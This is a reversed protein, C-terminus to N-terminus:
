KPLHAETHTHMECNCEFITCNVGMFVPLWDKSHRQYIKNILDCLRSFVDFLFLLKWYKDLALLWYRRKISGIPELPTWFSKQNMNWNLKEKNNHFNDTIETSENKESKTVGIFLIPINSIAKSLKNNSQIILILKIRQWPLKFTDLIAKWILKLWCFCFINVFDILIPLNICHHM